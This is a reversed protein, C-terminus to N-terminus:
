LVLPVKNSKFIQTGIGHDTFLELLMAHPVRGDLIHTKEVGRDLASACALLKPIMGGTIVKEAIMQEIQEREISPILTSPDKPDRQVGAVDTLLILKRAQLAAAIEAAVTDANINYSNGERDM